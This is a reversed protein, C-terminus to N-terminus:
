YQESPELVRSFGQFSVNTDASVEATIQLAWSSTNGLPQDPKQIGGFLVLDTDFWTLATSILRFVFPPGPPIAGIAITATNFRVPASDGGTGDIKLSRNDGHKALSAPADPTYPLFAWTARFPTATFATGDQVLMRKIVLITNPRAQITYQGVSLAVAVLNQGGSVLEVGALHLRDTELPHDLNVVPLFSEELSPDYSEKLSM